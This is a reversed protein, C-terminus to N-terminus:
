ERIPKQWFPEAEYHLYTNWPIIVGADAWPCAGYEAVMGEKLRPVVNPVAGDLISQEARMDWLYKRYFEPMYLSYCATESIAQADGTGDWGSMESPVTQPFMWLNDKLGWLANSFLQNVKGHGTDIWGIQDFDSRLHYATFMDATVPAPM